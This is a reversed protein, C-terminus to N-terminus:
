VDETGSIFDLVGRALACRKLGVDEVEFHIVVTM